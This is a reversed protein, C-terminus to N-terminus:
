CCKGGKGGWMDRLDIGKKGKRRGGGRSGPVSGSGLGSVSGAESGSGWSLRSSSGM